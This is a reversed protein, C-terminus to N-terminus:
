KTTSTASAGERSKQDAKGSNPDSSDSSKAPQAAAANTRSAAVGLKQLLDKPLKDMRSALKIIKGLSVRGVVNAIVADGGDHILVAIGAMTEGTPDGLAYIGVNDEPVTVIPTWKADLDARLAKVGKELAARNKEDTDIV